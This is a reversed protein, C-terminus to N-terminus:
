YYTHRPFNLNAFEGFLEIAKRDYARAAEHETTYCGIHLKKGDSTHIQASISIYIKDKYKQHQISVGLYESRSDRHSTHNRLNEAHTCIRLNQKRNDLINHNLHDVKQKRDTVKMIQRHMLVIVGRKKNGASSLSRSAYGQKTLRWKYKNLEEFNDDDVLVDVNVTDSWDKQYQKAKIIKM